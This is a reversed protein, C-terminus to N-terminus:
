PQVRLPPCGIGPRIVRATSGNRLEVDWSTGTGRPACVNDLTVDADDLIMAPRGDDNDLALTMNTFNLGVARRLFWGFAPRVGLYRPPFQTAHHPPDRSADAATGGGPSKIYLNVFTINPGIMFPTSGNGPMGDATASVNGKSGASAHSAHVGDVVINSISGPTATANDPRRLRDGIFFYFPTYTGTMVINRFVVDSVHAGDMTVIGIGAKGARTLTINEWLVGSFNGVTESGFNLGNCGCSLVSNTITLNTSHLVEGVSFDSKLVLADDGGGTVTVNNILVDRCGVIDLGDRQATVNLREIRLGTVNTALVTFWGGQEFTLDTIVIDVSSVIGWM